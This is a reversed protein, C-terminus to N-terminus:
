GQPKEGDRSALQPKLLTFHCEWLLPLLAFGFGPSSGQKETNTLFQLVLVGLFWLDSHCVWPHSSCIGHAISSGSPDGGHVVGYVRRSIRVQFTPCPTSKNRKFSKVGSNEPKPSTSSKPQRQFLFESPIWGFSGQLGKVYPLLMKRRTCSLSVPINIVSEQLM